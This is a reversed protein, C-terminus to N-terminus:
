FISMYIYLCLTLRRVIKTLLNQFVQLMFFSFCSVGSLINWIPMRHIGYSSYRVPPVVKLSAGMSCSNELNESPCLSLREGRHRSEAFLCTAFISIKELNHVVTLRKKLEVVFYAYEMWISNTWKLGKEYFTM